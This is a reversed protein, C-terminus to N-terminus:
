YYSLFNPDYKKPYYIYKIYVLTRGKSDKKEKLPIYPYEYTYPNPAKKLETQYAWGANTGDYEKLHYQYPTQTTDVRFVTFIQGSQVDYRSFM